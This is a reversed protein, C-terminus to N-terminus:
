LQQSTDSCILLNTLKKLKELGNAVFTFPTLALTLTLFLSHLKTSAKPQEPPIRRSISANRSAQM